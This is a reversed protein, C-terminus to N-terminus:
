PTTKIVYVTTDRRLSERLLYAAVGSGAYVSNGVSYVGQGTIAIATYGVPNGDTPGNEIM